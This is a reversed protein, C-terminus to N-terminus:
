KRKRWRRITSDDAPCEKFDGIRARRIVDASYHKGPEIIDPIETHLRECLSCELRRLLFNYSNGDSGIIKRRQSDYGSMISGCDPCVPAQKNKIKYLKKADDFVIEYYHTIIM